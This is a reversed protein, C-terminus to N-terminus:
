RLRMSEFGSPVQLDFLHDMKEVKPTFSRLNIQIDARPHSIAVTKAAGKRNSWTVNLNTLSNRCEALFGKSDNQCSWGSGTPAEDFLINQLWRPDLPIALLPRLVEPRPTGTYFRKNDMTFYRVEKDNVVLTSVPQGLTSTIDVRLNEKHVANFDLNVIFTRSHDRDKVLARGKWNGEKVNTMKMPASTCGVLFLIGFWRLM